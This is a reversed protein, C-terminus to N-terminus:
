NFNLNWTRKNLAKRLINVVNKMLQLNLFALIRIHCKCIVKIYENVWKSITVSTFMLSPLRLEPQYGWYITLHYGRPYGVFTTESSTFSPIKPYPCEHWHHWDYLPLSVLYPIIMTIEGKINGFFTTASTSIILIQELIWRITCGM